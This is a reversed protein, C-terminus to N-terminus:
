SGAIATVSWVLHVVDDKFIDGHGGGLAVPGEFIMRSADLNLVLPAAGPANAEKRLDLPQTLSALLGRSSDLPLKPYPPRGKGAYLGLYGAALRSNNAGPYYFGNATDYASYVCALCCRLAGLLRIEQQFWSSSMAGQVLTLSNVRFRGTTGSPNLRFVGTPESAGQRWIEPHDGVTQDLCLHRFTNSLLLGGFSHGALHVQVDPALADVFAPDSFLSDLFRAANRGVVTGLTQMEWFALQNDIGEIMSSGTNGAALGQRLLRIPWRAFVALRYRPQPGRIRAPGKAPFRYPGNEVDKPTIEQNRKGLREDFLLGPFIHVLWGMLSGALYTVLLYALLPIGCALQMVLWFFLQWAPVGRRPKAEAPRFTFYGLGLAALAGFLLIVFYGGLSSDASRAVAQTWNTLLPAASSVPRGPIVNGLWGVFSELWHPTFFSQLINWWDALMNVPLSKGLGKSVFTLLAMVGVIGALFGWLGTAAQVPTLFEGPKQDQDQKGGKAESQHYCTWAAAIKDHIYAGPADRLNLRRLAQALGESKEDFSADLPQSDPASMRTFLEFLDECNDTFRESPDMQRESAATPREFVAEMQQLFSSKSRRGNKDVWGNQGPDSHWHLTLFLPHYDSSPALRRRHLLISFRSSIRDYAAIAGFFNRHWGHSLVYVHTIPGQREMRAISQPFAAELFLRNAFERQGRQHAEREEDTPDTKPFSSGNRMWEGLLLHNLDSVLARLEEDDLNGAPRQRIVRQTDCTLRSLVFSAAPDQEDLLQAVLAKVDKIHEVQLLFGKRLDRAKRVWAVVRSRVEALFVDPQDIPVLFYPRQGRVDGSGPRPSRDPGIRFVQPDYGLVVAAAVTDEDPEERAELGNPALRCRRQFERTANETAPTPLGDVDREGLLHRSVLFQQWRARVLSVEAAAPAVGVAKDAVM